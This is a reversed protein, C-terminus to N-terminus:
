KTNQPESSTTHVAIDSHTDADSTPKRLVEAEFHMVKVVRTSPQMYLVPVTGHPCLVCLLRALLLIFRM